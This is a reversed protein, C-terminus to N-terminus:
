MSLYNQILRKGDELSWIFQTYYGKANMLDITKQQEHLHPDSKLKGKLTFPSEKKLEIICGHLNERPHLIVIDLAAHRSRTQKLLSRLGWSKIPMGSADSFFYVDPYNSRIFDCLLKQLHREPQKKKMARQSSPVRIAARTNMNRYEEASIVITKNM